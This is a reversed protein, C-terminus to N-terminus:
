LFFKSKLANKRRNCEDILKQSEDLAINTQEIAKKAELQYISLDGKQNNEIANTITKIQMKANNLTLLADAYKEYANVCVERLNKIQEDELHLRKVKELRDLWGKEEGASITNLAKEIKMYEDKQIESANNKIANKKSDHDSCASLLLFTLIFTIIKKM